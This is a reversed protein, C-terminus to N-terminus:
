PRVRWKKVDREVEVPRQETAKETGVKVQELPIESLYYLGVIRDPEISSLNCDGRQLGCSVPLVARGFLVSQGNLFKMAEEVNDFRQTREGDVLLAKCISGEPCPAYRDHSSVKVKYILLVPQAPRPECPYFRREGLQTQVIISAAQPCIVKGDVTDTRSIEWVPPPKPVLTGPQLVPKEQGWLPVTRLLSDPMVNAKVFHVPGFTIAGTPALREVVSLEKFPCPAPCAQEPIAPSALKPITSTECGWLPVALLVALLKKM